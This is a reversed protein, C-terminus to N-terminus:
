PAYEYAGCDSAAGVPRPRGDRDTAPFDTPDAADIAVSGAALHFDHHAPDRWGFPATTTASSTNPTVSRDTPGCAEGVNHSFTMGPLCDWGGINGVWRSRVATRDTAVGIEFTNNRVVWGDLPDDPSPGVQGMVLSYYHWTDAGVMTSHAFVNNEITVNGYAPPVPDWWLGHTFFLDMTACTRFSSRRITFGPVVIAYICENHVLPDTVLVDHFEVNDFTFNSGSVLAGKEDTVNGIRGNRFTVGDAGANHFGLVQDFRSDVELGDFTVDNASNDLQYVIAGREGLYTVRKTGGAIEQRPYTGARVLITQGDGAVAYARQFTLCPADSTCPASDSGTTSVFVSPTAVPGGDIGPAGGDIPGADIAGSGRDRSGGGGDNPVGGSDVCRPHSPRRSCNVLEDDGVITGSSECGASWVFTLVLISCIRSM